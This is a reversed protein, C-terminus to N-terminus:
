KVLFLVRWAMRGISRMCEVICNAKPKSIVALNVKMQVIFFMQSIMRSFMHWPM